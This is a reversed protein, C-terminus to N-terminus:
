GSWVKQTHRTLTIPVLAREHGIGEQVHLKIVEYEVDDVVFLDQTSVTNDTVFTALLYIVRETREDMGWAKLQQPTPADQVVADLRLADDYVPLSDGFSRAQDANGSFKRWTVIHRATEERAVKEFARAVKAELYARRRDTIYPARFEEDSM